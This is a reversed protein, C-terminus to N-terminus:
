KGKCTAFKANSMRAAAGSVPPTRAFNQGVWGGPSNLSSHTTQRRPTRGENNYSKPAVEVESTDNKVHKTSSVRFDRRGLTFRLLTTRTSAIEYAVYIQIRM